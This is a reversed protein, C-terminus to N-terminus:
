MGSIIFEELGIMPCSFTLLNAFRLLDTGILM